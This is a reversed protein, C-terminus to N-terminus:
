KMTAKLKEWNSSRAKSEKKTLSGKKSKKKSKPNRKMDHPDDSSKDVFTSRWQRLQSVVKDTDEVKGLCPCPIPREDEPINDFIPDRYREIWMSCLRSRETYAEILVDYLDETVHSISQSSSSLLSLLKSAAKELEGFSETLNKIPGHWYPHGHWHQKGQIYWQRIWEFEIETMLTQQARVHSMLKKENRKRSSQDNNTDSDKVIGREMDFQEMTSFFSQVKDRIYQWTGAGERAVRHTSSYRIGGGGSIVAHEHNHNFEDLMYYLSGSPLPVVLPPVDNLVGGSGGDMARLAVAWPHSENPPTDKLSQYVAISSFDRLGSDRHWGVSTKGMGYTNEQKLDKKTAISEMKNVLTLNYDASGVPNVHPSVFEQLMAKSRKTLTSNICGMSILASTTKDSYGLKKLSSGTMTHQISNGNSDVDTWPHSFLRLGLYKYTSGPDGVLCRTVSTRTLRKKGPQVVDYLFLGGKDMGGFSSDFQSHLSSPLAEPKDYHFGAYSTQLCEKFAQPNDKPSLFSSSSKNTRTDKWIPPPATDAAVGRHKKLLQALSTSSQQKSSSSSLSTDNNSKRKKSKKKHKAKATIDTSSPGSTVQDIRDRKKSKKKAM